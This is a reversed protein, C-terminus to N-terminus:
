WPNDLDKAEFLHNREVYMSDKNNSFLKKKNTLRYIFAIPSLFLYFILGLIISSVINGIFHTLKMWLWHIGKAISKFLLSALGIGFSLFIMWSIDFLFYIAMTGIVIALVTEYIKNQHDQHISM